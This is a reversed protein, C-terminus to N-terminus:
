KWHQIIIGATVTCFLTVAGAFLLWAAKVLYQVTDEISEVRSILGPRGNGTFVATTLKDVDDRLVEALGLM